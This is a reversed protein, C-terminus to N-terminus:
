CASLGGDVPLATGTVFSARDSLLFEVVGAIEEPEGIRGLPHKAAIRALGEQVEDKARLNAMVMETRVSGPCVANVRVGRGAYEVALSRTLAIVGGKSASYVSSGGWGLLGSVSAINVVSGSGRKAMAPLIAQCVIFCGALNVSMVRNFFHEDVDETSATLPNVGAGCVLFDPTGHSTQISSVVARVAARDTVDVQRVDVWDNFDKTLNDLDPSNDLAIVRTGKSVLERITASGIGGAAGTVIAFKSM